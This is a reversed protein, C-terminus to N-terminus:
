VTGDQSRELLYDDKCVSEAFVGAFAAVGLHAAQWVINEV